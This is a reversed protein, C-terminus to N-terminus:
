FSFLSVKEECLPARSKFLALAKAAAENADTNVDRIQEVAQNAVV